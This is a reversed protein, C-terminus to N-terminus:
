KPKEVAAPLIAPEVAIEAEQVATRIMQMETPSVYGDKLAKEMTDAVKKFRLINENDLKVTEVFVRLGQVVSNLERSEAQPMKIRGVKQDLIRVTGKFGFRAINPINYGLVVLGVFVATGWFLCGLIKKAISKGAAPAKGQDPGPKAAPSNGTGSQNTGM